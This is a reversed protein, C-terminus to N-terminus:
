RPKNYIYNFSEDYPFNTYADHGLWSPSMMTSDQPQHLYNLNTDYLTAEERKVVYPNDMQAVSPTAQTAYPQGYESYSSSSSPQGYMM